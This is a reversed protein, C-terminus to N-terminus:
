RVANVESYDSVSCVDAGDYDKDVLFTDLQSVLRAAM